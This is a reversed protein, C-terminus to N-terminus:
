AHSTAEAWCESCWWASMGVVDDREEVSADGGCGECPPADDFEAEWGATSDDNADYHRVFCGSCVRITDDSTRVTVSATVNGCIDCDDFPNM